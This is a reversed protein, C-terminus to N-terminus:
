KQMAIIKFKNLHMYQLSSALFTKIHRTQINSEQLSHM